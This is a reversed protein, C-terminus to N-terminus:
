CRSRTTSASCSTACCRRNGPSSDLCPARPPRHCPWRQLPRARRANRASGGQLTALAYADRGRARAARAGAAQHRQRARRPHRRGLPRRAPGAPEPPLVRPRSAGSAPAGGPAPQRGIGGACGLYFEGWEETDLNLMLRGQLADAALGKAGSMGSEEDITLLAEIPGHALGADELTALILAVGIGNDAGLTTDVASLWDDRRVTRIPDRTFDHASDANKQCVMDMHSQLVVGPAGEYGPSAPKRIILNGTPDVIAALGRELAWGRLHERM